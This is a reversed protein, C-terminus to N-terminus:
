IQDVLFKKIKLTFYEAKKKTLSVKMNKSDISFGLLEIKQTPVLISKGTLISYELSSLLDIIANINNMCEHKTNGQLCSDAKSSKYFDANCRLLWNAYGLIQLLKSVVWVQVKASLNQINQLRIEKIRYPSTLNNKWIEANYKPVSINPSNKLVNYKKHLAKFQEGDM